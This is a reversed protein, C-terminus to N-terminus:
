FINKDDIYVVWIFYITVAQGFFVVTKKRKGYRRGWRQMMLRISRNISILWNKNLM